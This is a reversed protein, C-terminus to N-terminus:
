FDLVNGHAFNPSFRVREELTGGSTVHPWAGYSNISGATHSHVRHVYILRSIKGKARYKKWASFGM